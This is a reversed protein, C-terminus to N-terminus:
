SCSPAVRRVSQVRLQRDALAGTVSVRRGVHDRLKLGNGSEVLDVSASGKKLFGSKWSRSKPADAGTTETLRFANDTRELCGAITVPSSKRAPAGPASDMDPDDAMVVGTTPAAMPVVASFRSAASKTAASPEAAIQPQADTTIPSVDSSERAAVLVAVVAVSMLAILIVGAGVTGGKAKRLPSKKARASTKSRVSKNLPMADEEQLGRIQWLL